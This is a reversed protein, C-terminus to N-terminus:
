LRPILVCEGFRSSDKHTPRTTNNFSKGPKQNAERGYIQQGGEEEEGGDGEKEKEEADSGVLIKKKTKKEAM